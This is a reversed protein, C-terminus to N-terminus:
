SHRGWPEASEVINMTDMLKEKILELSPDATAWRRDGSRVVCQAARADTRMNTAFM